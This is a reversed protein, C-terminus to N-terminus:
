YGAEKDVLGLLPRGQELRELNEFFLRVARENGEHSTTRFPSVLVNDRKWFRSGAPPVGEGAGPQLSVGAIWGEEVARVLADFDMVANRGSCDILFAGPKMAALFEANVLHRTEPTSPVCNVVYDSAALVEPLREPTVLLEVEPPAERPSRAVAIVKMDFARVRAALARGMTGFGVIGATRGALEAADGGSEYFDDWPTVPRALAHHYGRAFILMSAIAHEAAITGFVPKLCTLPVPSAVFEPFLYGEVGGSAAQVWQLRPAAALMGADWPGVIVADAGVLHHLLEGRDDACLIDLEALDRAAAEAHIRDSWGSWTAVVKSVAPM